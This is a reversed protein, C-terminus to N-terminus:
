LAFTRELWSAMIETVADERGVYFHDCDPVIEVESPGGARAQFKEAPYTQDQGV